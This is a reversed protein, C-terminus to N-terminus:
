TRFLVEERQFWAACFLLAAGAYVLSSVILVALCDWQFIGAWAEKLALSVNVLPVLALPITLEVGPIFSVVAPVIVVMNIPATYSQAEKFSKAFISVAMLVAAFLAAVPLMLVFSLAMARGDLALSGGAGGIDILGLQVSVSLSVINLLAATFSALTVVLFKGLVLELRGAPTVLLTELTGREKEGAGLDIAPYIAGAFCMLLVVYPLLVALISRERGVNIDHPSFPDLVTGALGHGTVRARVIGESLRDLFRSIKREAVQSKEQSEDYLVTYRATGDGALAEAFGEHLVLVAHFDRAEIGSTVARRLTRYAALETDLAARESASLQALRARDALRRPDLEPAEDEDEGDGAAEAEAAELATDVLRLRSADRLFTPTGAAFLSAAEGAPVFETTRLFRASGLRELDDDDLQANMEATALMVDAAEDANLMNMLGRQLLPDRIAAFASQDRGLQELGGLLEVLAPARESGVIAVVSAEEQLRQVGADVFKGMLWMLLPIILIPLAVMFFLTRRDRTVDVLEKRFIVLVNKIRM